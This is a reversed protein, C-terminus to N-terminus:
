SFCREGDIYKAKTVTNIAVEQAVQDRVDDITRQGLGSHKPVLAQDDTFSATGTRSSRVSRESPATSRSIRLGIM